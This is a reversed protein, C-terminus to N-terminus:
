ERKSGLTTSDGGFANQMLVLLATAKQNYCHSAFLDVCEEVCLCFWYSGGGGCVCVCVGM